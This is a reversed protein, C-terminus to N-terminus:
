MEEHSEVVVEIILRASDEWADRWLEEAKQSLM